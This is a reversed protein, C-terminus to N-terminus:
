TGWTNFSIFVGLYCSALTLTVIVLVGALPPRRELLEYHRYLLRLAVSAAMFGPGFFFLLVAPTYLFDPLRAWVPGGGWLPAYMLMQLGTACAFLASVVAWLHM